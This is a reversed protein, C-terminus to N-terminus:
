ASRKLGHSRSESPQSLGQRPQRSFAAPKSTDRFALRPEDSETTNSVSWQTRRPVKAAVQVVILFRVLFLALATLAMLLLGFLQIYDWVLSMDTTLNTLNM